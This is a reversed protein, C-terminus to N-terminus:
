TNLKYSLHTIDICEFILRNLQTQRTAMNRLNVRTLKATNKSGQQKAKIRTEKQGAQSKM